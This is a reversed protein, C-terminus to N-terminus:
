ISLLNTNNQFVIADIQMKKAAKLADDKTHVIPEGQQNFSTNILAGIQYKKDIFTLLDFMFPNQKRNKIVQIRATQDIHVVGELEKQYAPLIKFELLMFQALHHIETLGTYKKANKELMVPAVPRYWERKKCFESVKQALKKSNALALVSRNGLARPGVESYSICTGVIKKNILLEATKQIMEPKVENTYHEINWNNLYPSHQQIPNGKQQELYAAAGIALGTDSPCPPVFIDQFLKSNLLLSNFKINLASGGSYYLFDTNTQKQLIKIKKLLKDIFIQHFTAAIDQLFTDKTHFHTNEWGFQTNAQEYFATKKGWISQFYDNEQLWDAIQQRYKGYSAFGMLKGPVSLQLQKKVGLITFILANANFFSTIEKLDWHYEILKLENTNTYHWASFNSVSAGGDFHILLSNKKFNGFFPICSFIHALEHNLVYANKKFDNLWWLNGKEIKNQLQKVPKTEFRIAGNSSIFSRGHVADVFVIDINKNLLKAQKLLEFLHKELKNDHKKRSIRELQIFKEIKGNHMLVFSHDHTLYPFDADIIDQMGYIALTSNM